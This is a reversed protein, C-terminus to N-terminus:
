SVAFGIGVVRLLRRANRSLLPLLIGLPALLALNGLLNLIVGPADLARLFRLTEVFPVLNADYPDFAYLVINMPFFTVHVVGCAYLFFLNVAIERPLSTKGASFFRAVRYVIWGALAIAFVLGENIEVLSNM